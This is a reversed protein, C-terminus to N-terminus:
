ILFNRLEILRCAGLFVSWSETFLIIRPESHPPHVETRRSTYQSVSLSSCVSPCLCLCVSHPLLIDCSVLAKTVRTCGMEYLHVYLLFALRYVSSSSSSVPSFSVFFLLLSLHNHQRSGYRLRCVIQSKRYNHKHTHTYMDTSPALFRVTRTKICALHFFITGTQTVHSFHLPVVSTVVIM